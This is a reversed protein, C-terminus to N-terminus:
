DFRRRVIHLSFKLTSILQLTECRTQFFLYVRVRNYRCRNRRRRTYLTLYETTDVLEESKVM